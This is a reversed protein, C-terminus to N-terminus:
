LMSKKLPFLIIVHVIKVVRKKTLASELFPIKIRIVAPNVPPNAHYFLCITMVSSCVAFQLVSQTCSGKYKVATHFHYLVHILHAQIVKIRRQVKVPSNYTVNNRECWCVLM